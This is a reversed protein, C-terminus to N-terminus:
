RQENIEAVECQLAGESLTVCCRTREGESLRKERSNGRFKRRLGNACIMAAMFKAGEVIMAAM